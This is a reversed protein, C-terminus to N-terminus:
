AYLLTSLFMGLAGIPGLVFVVPLAFAALRWSRASVRCGVALGAFLLSVILHIGVGIWVSMVGKDLAWLTSSEIILALLTLGLM